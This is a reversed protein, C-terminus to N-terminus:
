RIVAPGRSGARSMAWQYGITVALAILATRFVERGRM